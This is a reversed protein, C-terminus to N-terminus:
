TDNARASRRDAIDKYDVTQSVISEEVTQLAINAAQMDGDAYAAQADELDSLAQDVPILAASMSVDVDAAKLLKAAGQPDGAQAKAQAASVDKENEPTVVFEDGVMMALDFPVYDGPQTTNSPTISMSDSDAQAKQMADVAGSIMEGAADEQGDFIALRAARVAHLSLAANDSVELLEPDDAAEQQVDRAAQNAAYDQAAVDSVDSNAIDGTEVAFAPAVAATMMLASTAALTAIPTKRTM